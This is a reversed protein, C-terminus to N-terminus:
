VAKVSPAKGSAAAPSRAPNAPASCPSNAKGLYSFGVVM